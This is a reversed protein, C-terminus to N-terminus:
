QSVACSGRTVPPCSCRGAPSGPCGGDASCAPCAPAYLNGTSVEAIITAVTGISLVYLGIAILKLSNKKM